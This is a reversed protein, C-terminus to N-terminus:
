QRLYYWPIDSSQFETRTITDPRVWESLVIWRDCSGAGSGECQDDQGAAAQGGELSAERLQLVGLVSAARGRRCSIVSSSVEQSSNTVGEELSPTAGLGGGAIARGALFVANIVETSVSSEIRRPSVASRM